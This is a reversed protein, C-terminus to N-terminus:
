LGEQSISDGQLPPQSDIVAAPPSPNTAVMVNDSGHYATTGEQKQSRVVEEM